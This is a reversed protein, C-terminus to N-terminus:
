MIWLKLGINYIKSSCQCSRLPTKKAQKKVKKPNKLKEKAQSLVVQYNDSLVSFIHLVIRSNKYHVTAMLTQHKGNLAGASKPPRRQCKQGNRWILNCVSTPFIGEWM